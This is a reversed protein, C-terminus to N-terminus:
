AGCCRKYKRGSGCSCPDNRGVVSPRSRRMYESGASAALEAFTEQGDKSAAWRDSEARTADFEGRRVANEVAAIRERRLDITAIRYPRGFPDVVTRAERRLEVVLRVLEFGDAIDAPAHFDDFHGMRAREALTPLGIDALVRGLYDPTMEGDRRGEWWWPIKEPQMEGRKTAALTEAMVAQVEDSLEDM